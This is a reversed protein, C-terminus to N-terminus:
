EGTKYYCIRLFMWVLLIFPRSRLAQLSRVPEVNHYGSQLLNNIIIQASRCKLMLTPQWRLSNYHLYTYRYNRQMIKKKKKKNNLHLFFQVNKWDSTRCKQDGVRALEKSSFAAFSSLLRESPPPWYLREGFSDFVCSPWSLLSAETSRETGSCCTESHNTNSCRWM